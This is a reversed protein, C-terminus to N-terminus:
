DLWNSIPIHLAFIPSSITLLKNSKVQAIKKKEFNVQIQLHNKSIFTWLAPLSGTAIYYHILSETRKIRKFNQSPKQLQTSMQQYSDKHQPSLKANQLGLYYHHSYLCKKLTPVSSNLPLQPNQNDVKTVHNYWLPQHGTICSLETPNVYNSGPPHQPVTLLNIRWSTGNM